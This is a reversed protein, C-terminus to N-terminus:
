YRGELGMWPKAPTCEGRAMFPSDPKEMEAIVFRGLWLGDEARRFLPGDRKQTIALRCEWVRYSWDPRVVFKAYAIFGTEVGGPAWEASLTGYNTFLLIETHDAHYKIVPRTFAHIDDVSFLEHDDKGRYFIYM